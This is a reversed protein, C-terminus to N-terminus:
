RHRWNQLLPSLVARQFLITQVYYHPQLKMLTGFTLPTRHMVTVVAVTVMVVVVVVNGVTYMGRMNTM